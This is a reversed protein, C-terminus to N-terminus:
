YNTTRNSATHIMFARCSLRNFLVAGHYFVMTTYIFATSAEARVTCRIEPLSMVKNATRKQRSMALFGHTPIPLTNDTQRDTVITSQPWVTRSLGM